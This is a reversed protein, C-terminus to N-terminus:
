KIYQFIKYLVNQGVIFIRTYPVPKPGHLFARNPGSRNHIWLKQLNNLGNFTLNILDDKGYEKVLFERNLIM